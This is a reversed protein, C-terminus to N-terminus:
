CLSNVSVTAATMQFILCEMIFSKERGAYLPLIRSWLSSQYLLLTEEVFLFESKYVILQWSQWLEMGVWSCLRCSSRWTSLVGFAVPLESTSCFCLHQAVGPLHHPGAAGHQDSWWPQCQSLHGTKWRGACHPPCSVLRIGTVPHFVVTMLLVRWNYEAGM